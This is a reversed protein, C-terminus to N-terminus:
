EPVKKIDAFLGEPYVHLLENMTLNNTSSPSHCLGQMYLGIDLNINRSLAERTMTVFQDYYRHFSQQKMTDLKQMVLHTMQYLSSFEKESLTIVNGGGGQVLNVYSGIHDKKFTLTINDSLEVRKESLSNNVLFNKFIIYIRSMHFNFWEDETFIVEPKCFEDNCFVKVVPIFDKKTSLGVEVVHRRVAEDENKLRYLTASILIDDSEEEDMVEYTAM